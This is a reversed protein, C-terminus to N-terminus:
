KCPSFDIERMDVEKLNKKKRITNTLPYCVLGKKETGFYFLFICTVKGICKRLPSFIPKHSILKGM